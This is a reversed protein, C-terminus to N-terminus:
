CPVVEPAMATAWDDDEWVYCWWGSASADIRHTTGRYSVCQPSDPLDRGFIYATAGAATGFPGAGCSQGPTWEDTSQDFWYTDFELWRGDSNTDIVAGAVRGNSEIALVTGFRYGSVTLAVSQSLGRPETM